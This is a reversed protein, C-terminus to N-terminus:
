SSASSSRLLSEWVAVPRNHNRKQGSPVTRGTNRCWRNQAGIRMLGGIARPEDPTEINRRKLEDWLDMSTFEQRESCLRRLAELGQTQFDTPSAALAREAGESALDAATAQRTFKDFLTSQSMAVGGQQSRIEAQITKSLLRRLRDFVKRAPSRARCRSGSSVVIFM